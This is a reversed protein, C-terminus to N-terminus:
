CGSFGQYATRIFQASTWSRYGLYEGDATYSLARRGIDYVVLRQQSAVFAVGTPQRYEGPGDGKGGIDKMFNGDFDYMRVQVVPISDAIYLRQGAVDVAMAHPNVLIEHEERGTGLHTLIELEAADGWVSGHQVTVVIGEDTTEVQSQLSGVYFETEPSSQRGCAPFVILCITVLGGSLCSVPFGPSVRNQM